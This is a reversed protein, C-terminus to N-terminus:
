VRNGRRKNFGTRYDRQKSSFAMGTLASGIFGSMRTAQGVNIKSKGMLFDRKFEAGSGAQKLAADDMNSIAALQQQRISFDQVRASNGVGFTTEDPKFRLHPNVSPALSEIDTARRTPDVDSLRFPQNSNTFLSSLDFDDKVGTASLEDPTMNRMDKVSLGGTPVGSKPTFKGASDGLLDGIFKKEIDKAIGTGLAKVGGGVLAGIVAGEGINSDTAGAATGGVLGGMMMAAGPIGGESVNFAKTLINGEGTARAGGMGVTVGGKVDQVINELSEKTLGSGAGDAHYKHHATLLDEDLGEDAGMKLLRTLSANKSAAADAGGLIFRKLAGAVSM